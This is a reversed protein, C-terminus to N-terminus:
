FQQLTQVTVIFSAIHYAIDVYLCDTKTNCSLIHEKCVVCCTIGFEPKLRQFIQQAPNIYFRTIHLVITIGVIKFKGIVNPIIYEM